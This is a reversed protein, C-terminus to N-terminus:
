DRDTVTHGICLSLRAACIGEEESIRIFIGIPLRVTIVVCLFILFILNFEVQIWM